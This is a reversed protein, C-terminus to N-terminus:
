LKTLIEPGDDTILITHEFHASISGNKTKLTFGDRGLKIDGSGLTTMPELALVMGSKLINGKGPRGFNPIIPDEHVALGVGHGTLDNVVSFGFRKVAQEISWGIDGITQGPWCAEIGKNLAEYTAEIMNKAENSIKGVPVTIAMDTFRHRHNLGLDLGVIDGAQLIRPGPVGHVIEDNVSVCLAAPFALVSGHPRYNLFAPQDDMKKILERAMDDLLSTKIGPVVAKRIETIVSALRRGSEKLLTIDESTKIKIM